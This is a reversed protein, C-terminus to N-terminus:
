MCAGVEGYSLESCARNQEEGRDLSISVITGLGFTMFPDLTPWFIFEIGGVSHGSFPFEMWSATQLFVFMADQQVHGILVPQSARCETSPWRLNESRLYLGWFCQDGKRRDALLM